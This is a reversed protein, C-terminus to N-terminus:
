MEKQNNEIKELQEQIKQIAKKLTDIDSKSPTEEKKESEILTSQSSYTQTTLGILQLWNGISAQDEITFEQTLLLGIIIASGTFTYPEVNALVSKM